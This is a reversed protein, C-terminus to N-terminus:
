KDTKKLISSMLFSIKETCHKSNISVIMPPSYQQERSNFVSRSLAWLVNISNIVINRPDGLTKVV